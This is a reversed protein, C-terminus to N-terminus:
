IPLVQKLESESFDTPQKGEELVLRVSRAAALMLMTDKACKIGAADGDGFYWIRGKPKTHQLILAAQESSCTSGMLAVVNHYSHQWLWWLATFGEVVILDNVPKVIGYGGYLFLSKHFELREGKIERSSPLLYRPCDANIAEDDGVRGAYGVLAGSSDKLPVVVRGKMLGRSCYGLGFHAITEPTFGRSPLYGHAMDLDKLEFTLPPNIVISLNTAPAPVVSAAPKSHGNDASEENPIQLQTSAVPMPSPKGSTPYSDDHHNASIKNGTNGAIKGGIKGGNFLGDFHIAVKYFEAGDKPNLNEMLAGFEMVNGSAGCSFCQWIKRELNASFSPSRPRGDKSVHNPLPCFALAQHNPKEFLEVEYHQLVARFDLAERLAKFDFFVPM